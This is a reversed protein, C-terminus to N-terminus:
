RLIKELEASSNYGATDRPGAPPSKKSPPDLTSLQTKTVDYTCVAEFRTIKYKADKFNKDAIRIAGDFGHEDDYIASLPATSGKKRKGKLECYVLFLRSKPEGLTKRKAKKLDANAKAMVKILGSEAEERKKTSCSRINYEPMICGGYHNNHLTLASKNILKERRAIKYL